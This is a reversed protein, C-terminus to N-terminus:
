SALRLRPLVRPTPPHCKRWKEEEVWAADEASDQNDYVGIVQGLAKTDIVAWAAAFEDYRVMYRM